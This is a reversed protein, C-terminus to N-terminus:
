EPVCLLTMHPDILLKHPQAASTFTFNTENSTAVVTGLFITRGPGAAAYIPVPAIFSRPVGEQLLKGRIQFGKESSHSTFQVKYHPIGTGRVYEDFFWEMSRGGELDMRPTMIAEVERQLDATTLATRAYKSVLTHLLAIFRADPNKGNAAGPQRLMERLMHMIWTGKAYVVVSYADPSRSSILRRGIIVPGIDSPIRDEGEAKTTLRKRYHALWTSLPHDQSKQSDAFLLALYESIAEDIWQDQYSSWGVVNGWWQHAVEHFPVVDTFFARGTTSLGARYQAEDPLFSYTSLYLLGPWGQGFAGPIQSVGLNRFPFPGSYLEYFRISSDIERALQKLFGAPSPPLPPFDNGLPLKSIPTHRSAGEQPTPASLRARLIEELQKNAYVDITRNESSLSSSAYEGLNFGAEPVPIETKWTAVRSDGEERETSKAGTAVLRLRKPWHFTLDYLAFESADGYHPYWSERAGVFLVSNGADEIVNGNYRFHLTFTGGPVPPKPLFVILADQGRSNIEQQTLGENQFFPLAEGDDGTIGTIKLARSLQVGLFQQAAASARFEISASAELSNDPHITTDIRYHIANIGMSFAVSDAMRYSSWVDYYTAKGVTRPQGLTFNENQMGDLLIDLPGTVVGDIGAHFFPAPPNSYKEILIRLSHSPNLRDLNARWLPAFQDDVAPTLGARQLERLLEQDTGDTFRVYASLFQEDFVPAGLFRAVQQKEVPDRPLAVVHGVGSFVFGTIRGEFSQFFAIKGNQFALVTDAKRLEVRDKTSVTYVHQSDIALANLATLLERPSSDATRWFSPFLCGFVVLLLRLRMFHTYDCEANPFLASRL